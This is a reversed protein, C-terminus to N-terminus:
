SRLSKLQVLISFASTTAAHAGGPPPLFATVGRKKLCKCMSPMGAGERAANFTSQKSVSAQKQSCEQRISFYASTHQRSSVYASTHSVRELRHKRADHVAM